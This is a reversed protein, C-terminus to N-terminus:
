SKLEGKFALIAREKASLTRTSGTANTLTKMTQPQKNNQSPTQKNTEREVAPRSSQRTQIKKSKALREAYEVLYEEVEQAAEEVTMLREEENWTKEILEVVDNISGTLRVMEYEDSSKVLETTDTKIQKLAQKYQADQAEVARTENSKQSELLKDITAQQNKIINEIRPDLPQRNIAQQTLRDYDWGEQELTTLPDNLLSSKPIYNTKYDEEKAALAAERAAIADERSKIQEQAQRQQARIAKEKRALLQYQQDLKPEEAKVENITQPEPSSEVLEASNDEQGKNPIIASMEEATVKTADLVPQETLRAIARARADQAPTPGQPGTPATAGQPIVKM